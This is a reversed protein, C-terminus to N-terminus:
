QTTRMATKSTAWGWLLFHVPLKHRAHKNFWKISTWLRRLPRRPEVTYFNSIDSFQDAFIAYFLTKKTYRTTCYFLVMKAGFPKEQLDSFIKLEFKQMPFILCFQQCKYFKRSTEACKQMNRSMKTVYMLAKKVKKEDVRFSHLFM